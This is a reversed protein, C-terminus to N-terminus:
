AARDREGVADGGLEVPVELAGAGAVAGVVAEDEAVGVGAVWAVVGSSKM